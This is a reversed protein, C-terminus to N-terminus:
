LLVTDHGRKDKRGVGSRFPWNPRCHKIKSWNEQVNTLSDPEGVLNPLDVTIRAVNNQALSLEGGLTLTGASARIALEIM